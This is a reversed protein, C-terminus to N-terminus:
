TNLEIRKESLDCKAAPKELVFAMLVLGMNEFMPIEFNAQLFCFLLTM